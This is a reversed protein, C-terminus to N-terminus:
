IREFVERLANNWREVTFETRVAEQARAALELRFRADDALEGLAAALQTIVAEDRTYMPSYNERLIGTKEDIWSVKRARGQVVVGTERNRVYEEIAWGDSTLVALGHAMAELLSVVHIRAAPLAFIDSGLLVDRWQEAPLYTSLNRVRVTGYKDQLQRFRDQCPGGPIVCRITLHLRSDRQAARDFAEMLDVGGRVYFGVEAQHWSSSFLVHVPDGSGKAQRAPVSRPPAYGLPCYVLKRDIRRSHFLTRLSEATSRVHTVVARCHSQELLAKVVPFAPLKHIDLASTRGNHVFPFFLSTSDEIEIVWPAPAIL